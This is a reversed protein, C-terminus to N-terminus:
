NIAEAKDDPLVRYIKRAELAPLDDAICIVFRDETKMGKKM